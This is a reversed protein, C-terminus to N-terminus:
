KQGSVVGSRPTTYNSNSSGPIIRTGDGSSQSLPRSSPPATSTNNTTMRNYLSSKADKQVKEVAKTNGKSKYHNKQSQVSKDIKSSMMTTSGGGSGPTQRLKRTAVAVPTQPDPTPLPILLSDTNPGEPMMMVPEEVTVLGSYIMMKYGLNTCTIYFLKGDNDVINQIRPVDQERIKFGFMGLHPINNSTTVFKNFEIFDFDNRFVLKIDQCDTLDFPKFRQNTKLYLTFNVLNDFPKISIKMEGNPHFNEMRESSVSNLASKSYAVVQTPSQNIYKLVPVPVRINNEPNLKGIKQYDYDSVRVRQYIKPKFTERVQIRKFNISYKSLQDQKLGYIAKKTNIQGSDKDIIRMEVDITASSSSYRLIPRYEVIENFNDEVTYTLTRGARNDEYTTVLFELKFYKGLEKSTNLFDVFEENTGGLTGYIEFFDGRKSEALFLKIGEMEPRQPFQITVPSSLTYSKFTSVQQARTIFQFDFFIPADKSLGVGNSLRFNVSTDLFYTPDVAVRSVHYLSPIDIEISKNWLREQYELAPLIDTKLFSATDPENIDFFFNSLDCLKKNTSDYTYLRIYFGLYEGFQWNSPFWLRVKDHIVSDPDVFEETTLFLYNELSVRTYRNGLADLRFLQNSLNNKTITTDSAVYSKILDRQNNMIKYPEQIINNDDWTWEILVDRNVKQYQTANM